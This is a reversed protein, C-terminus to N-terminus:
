KAPATAKPFDQLKPPTKQQVTKVHGGFRQIVETDGDPLKVELAIKEDGWIGSIPLARVELVSDPLPFTQGPNLQVRKTKNKPLLIEVTVGVNSLNKVEGKRRKEEKAAKVGLTVTKGYDKILTKNGNAEIIEVKVEVDTHLAGLADVSVSATDDPLQVTQGPYLATTVSRQDQKVIKVRIAEDGQNTISAELRVACFFLVFLFFGFRRSWLVPSPQMLEMAYFANPRIDVRLQGAPKFSCQALAPLGPLIVGRLPHLVM